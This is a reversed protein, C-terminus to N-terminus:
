RPAGFPYDSGFPVPEIKRDALTAADLATKIVFPESRKAGERDAVLVCNPHDSLALDVAVKAITIFWGPEIEGTSLRTVVQGPFACSGDWAGSIEADGARWYAGVSADAQAASDSAFNFLHDIMASAGVIFSFREADQRSEM